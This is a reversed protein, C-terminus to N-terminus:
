ESILSYILNNHLRPKNVCIRTNFLRISKYRNFCLVVHHHNVRVKVVKGVYNVGVFGVNVKFVKNQM